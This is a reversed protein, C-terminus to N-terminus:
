RCFRGFCCARVQKASEQLQANLRAVDVDRDSQLLSLQAPRPPPAPLLLLLIPAPPSTLRSQLRAGVGGVM